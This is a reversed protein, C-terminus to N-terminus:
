YAVSHTNIFLVAFTLTVASTFPASWLPLVCLPNTPARPSIWVLLPTQSSTLSPRASAEELPSKGDENDIQQLRIKFKIERSKM